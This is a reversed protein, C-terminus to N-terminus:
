LAPNRLRRGGSITDLQCDVAPTYCTDIIDQGITQDWGNWWDAHGSYGAPGSYTDSALRWGQTNTGPPVYYRIHEEIEPLPVPHTSPCGVGPTSYAMHSRHDASDLDRGNWCQPFRVIMVLYMGISQNGGDCVPINPTGSIGGFNFVGICAYHIRPNQTSPNSPGTPTTRTPDGAVMRLGPPFWGGFGNNAIQAATVGQYGSKYYVQLAENGDLGPAFNWNPKQFGSFNTVLSNIPVGPAGDTDVM